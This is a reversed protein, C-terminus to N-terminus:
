NADYFTPLTLYAGKLAALIAKVMAKSCNFTELREGIDDLILRYHTHPIMQGKPLLSRHVWAATAYRDTHTTHDDIDGFASCRPINPVKAGSLKVYVDGEKLMGPVNVRWSDKFFVICHREIDYAISTRTARGFPTHPRAVPPKIVYYGTCLGNTSMVKQPVRVVLLELGKFRDDALCAKETQDPSAKHVTDDHGRVSKDAQDYRVFFDLLAPDKAYYIPGTVIAGSRDWRILRAYDKV